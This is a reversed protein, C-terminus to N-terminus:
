KVGAKTNPILAELLEKRWKGADSDYIGFGSCFEWYAWSFRRKEAERAVFSTWLARSQMDAKSYAGFEGINIPRNNKKAWELAKNFDKEVLQDEKESGTWKTGLWNKSQEGVWSAGQHTFNFPQYYHCTVIINRDDEPPFLKDLKDINNWNTPGILVIRNPNSKRIVKLAESAIINWKDDNLNKCPENLLEFLVSNPCNKFCESIQHWIALFREKHEDPKDYIEEYHHINIIVHLDNFLSEKVAWKVRDLFVPQITYPKENLAHASWRIPIRVSDFGADKIRKFYDEKLVVGWQGEDPAELANGLNIGRGLNKNIDFATLNDDVPGIPGASLFTLFLLYFKLTSM